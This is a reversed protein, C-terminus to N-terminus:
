IFYVSTTGEKESNLNLNFLGFEGLPFVDQAAKLLVSDFISKVDQTYVGSTSEIPLIM